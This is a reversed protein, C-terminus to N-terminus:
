EAWEKERAERAAAMEAHREQAYLESRRASEAEWARLKAEASALKGVTDSWGCAALFFWVSQWLAFGAVLKFPAILHFFYGAGFFFLFGAGAIALAVESWQVRKM